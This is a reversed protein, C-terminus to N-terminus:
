RVVLAPTRDIVANWVTRSDNYGADGPVLVPGKLRMKLNDLANQQLDVDRGDITKVKM